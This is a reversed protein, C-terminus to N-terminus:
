KLCNGQKKASRVDIEMSVVDLSRAAPIPLPQQRRPESPLPLAKELLVASGKQLSIGVAKAARGKPTTGPPTAPNGAGCWRQGQLDGWCPVPQFAADQTSAAFHQQFVFCGRSRPM